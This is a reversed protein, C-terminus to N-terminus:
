LVSSLIWVMGFGDEGGKRGNISIIGLDGVLSGVKFDLGLIRFVGKQLM